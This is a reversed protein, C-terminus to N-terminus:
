CNERSSENSELLSSKPGSGEVAAVLETALCSNLLAMFAGGATVFLLESTSMFNCFPGLRFLLLLLLLLILLLSLFSSGVFKFSTLGLQCSDVAEGIRPTSGLSVGTRAFTLLRLGTRGLVLVAVGTTILVGADLTPTKPVGGGVAALGANLVAEVDERPLEEVATGVLLDVIGSLLETAVDFVEDGFTLMAETEEENDVATAVSTEPMQGIGM